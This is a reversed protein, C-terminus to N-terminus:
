RQGGVMLKTRYMERDTVIELSYIGAALSSVDVTRSEAVLQTQKGSMDIAMISLCKEGSPLLLQIQAFAPNPYIGISEIKVNQVNLGQTALALQVAAYANVKGYGWMVDGPPTILDGTFEDERATQQLIEKVQSPTLLPNADLMLAVIGAVCPSSMSTGSLRAFDYDHDNFSVTSISAYTAVTFSSMSSAVNVGPAAIDPKM